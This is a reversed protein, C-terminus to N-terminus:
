RYIVSHTYSGGYGDKSRDVAVSDSRGAVHSNYEALPACGTFLLALILLALKM